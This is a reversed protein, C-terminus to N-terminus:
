EDNDMLAEYIVSQIRPRYENRGFKNNEMSPFTRNSLIVYIIGEEPDSFAGTGTFGLHGFTSRSAKDSMNITKEPDLERMDWGIGRRTSRYFRNTFREITKPKLYQVGGYYGGNLLMQMLVGVEYANSFLGAHGSVGGLMAAGMDHVHGQLIQSRFYDDNESPVIFKPDHKLLPLYGTRKLGLPKYFQRDVYENIPMGTVRNIIQHILYFGLDSYRYDRSSRLDVNLIKSWITDKYDTRLFLNNAVSIDFGNGNAKRYYKDLLANDNESDVTSRYFPIWGPLGAYHAMMDEIIINAKNTTDTEPLYKRIPDLLDIKEEEYLKMMSITSSLVKTLSAVDYIDDLKVPQLNEYTHTGYAKHFIVQGNRSILVQCGSAAKEAIMEAVITDISALTDSSVGVLEPIGYALRHLSNTEFGDGYTYEPSATVPLRGKFTQAGFIAQAAMDQALPDEDYAMLVWPLNGIKSLAYPSGFMCLVVKTKSSLRELFRISGQDIGYNKTVYKSMDHFSVFVLDKDELQEILIQRQSANMKKAAQYHKVDAYSSLREQFLTKETAGISLSAFKLGSVDKLPLLQDNNKVLTIADRYMKSKLAISLNTNIDEAIKEIAPIEPKLVLGLQYKARLIKKVSAALREESIDEEEIAKRIREIGKAVAVSLLLVDNGAKFAELEIEGEKFHKTVGKMDLADTFVIGEFGIEQQLLKEIANNSLTTPRNKRSDISPVNLHAVMVGQLGNDTLMKFPMLEISDLRKKDHYIVPLDLHSDVDTDGHGPFHKACAIIGGDQLGKMYTYSKTSVNYRDEGFSRDNIVPNNPNNNIDVVPAFNIHIGIRKCQRAIDLGMEYLLDNNRLAGLTLQRPYSIAQEKFRMGLGWEADMAIWLPTESLEQYQNILIAQETPNGQFFCLGGIKNKKILNKISEIHTKDKHSYARVMFLQAIRDNLTMQAYTNEVWLDESSIALPDQSVVSSCLCVALSLVLFFNKM